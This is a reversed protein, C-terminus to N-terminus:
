ARTFIQKLFRTVRGQKMKRELEEKSTLWAVQIVRREGKYPLHGHWSTETRRFATFTGYLPKVEDGVQHDFSEPSSLFRFCGDSSDPWTDNLYLLATVIKSKSDNHIRGDTEKSLKRITVITPYQSLRPVGLRDGLADAFAPSQMDDVIRQVSPGCESTLYPFFGSRDYNPFDAAIAARASEPLAAKVVTYPFPESRVVAGAQEFIAPKLLPEATTTTAVSASAGM